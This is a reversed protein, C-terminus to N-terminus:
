LTSSPRARESTSTRPLRRQRHRRLQRGHAPDAPHTRARGLRRHLHRRRQQSLRAPTRAPPVEGFYSAAIIAMPASYSAVFLDLDGDNDIDFFWTPFSGREPETVGAAQAVDTFTGDGNNRYLRNAGFNSVYLDPDGDNDFDGWATGKAFRFNEVGAQQGVETFTGNGNNRYLHSQYPRGLDSMLRLPEYTGTDTENGVYVDLDGDGDYDAWAATQTPYAPYALGAAATVDVFRGAPRDLDNRLLSNRIQGGDGLWAGRLVLVDVRGDNDFDTSVLNLGGLQGDLGWAESVDEFGGAGDNRYARMPQCPDWSSSLIDILGDGDLDDLVVSGSLDFAAIGLSAGVDVWDPFEAAPTLAATPLRHPEPVGDPHQGSVMRALNLMWRARADAPALELLELYLDGARRAHDPREHVAEASVPLICSSAVHLGICNEDEGLQFHANALNRLIDVQLEVPATGKEALARARELETVARDLRGLRILDWGLRSRLRAEAVPDGASEALGRLRETSVDEFYPNLDRLVRCVTEFETRTAEVSPLIQGSAGSGPSGLGALIGLTALTVPATPLRLRANPVRVPLSPIWM